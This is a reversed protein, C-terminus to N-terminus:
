EIMKYEENENKLKLVKFSISNFCYDVPHIEDLRLQAGALLRIVIQRYLLDSIMKLKNGIQYDNNLPPISTQKFQTTPILEYFENTLDTINEALEPMAPLGKSRRDTMRQTLELIDILVQQANELRETNLNRFPLVEEDFQYLTSVNQIIKSNCLRRILKFIDKDLKSEILTPDKYNIPRLYNDVKVPQKYTVLRYKKKVKHFNARDEWKNGSKSKFIKCFEAKGEEFSGFPTHQFQGDTGSRGWQTFLVIVGRVKDRLLQMRYFVNGSYYGRLIEVKVMYISFPDNDEYIVEYDGGTVKHHPKVRDKDDEKIRALREEEKKACEENFKEFDEEFDFNVVPFDIQHLVSSSVKKIQSPEILLEKAGFDLLAEKMLENAQQSAYYIPSNGDKDKLDLDAKDSFFELLNINMYYGFEMPKVIHHIINRGKNDLVTLDPSAELFFQEAQKEHNARVMLTLPTFGNGDGLNIDAGQKKLFELASLILDKQLSAVIYTTARHDTGEYPFTDNLDLGHNVGMEIFRKYSGFRKKMLISLPTDGSGDKQNIDLGLNVLDECLEVNGSEAAYHLCNKNFDDTLSFDIKKKKVKEYIKNLLDKEISGAHKCFLHSINQNHENKIQYLGADSKKLLLTYVYNFKKANFCDLIALSLKFGYELMLFAIGQWNRKIAMMFVTVKKKLSDFDLEDEEEDDDDYNNNYGFGFAARKQNYSTRPHAVKVENEDEDDDGFESESSDQEIDEGDEAEEEDDEGNEEAEQQRKLEKEKEDREKMMAITVVNVPIKLDASRQILYIAMDRHNNILCINLPTNEDNNQSNIEAGNKILYLASITSGRQAAYHLPTYGWQDKVNVKANERSLINSVTEIPDIQSSTFARGIKVFAYHLPTRNRKDTKNMDVGNSLLLNELENTADANDQNNNVAWHLVNRGDKDCFNIDAQKSELMLEVIKLNRNKTLIILPTTGEKTQIDVNAGLEIIRQILTLNQASCALTIPANGEKDVSNIDCGKNILYDFVTLDQISANQSTYLVLETKGDQRKQNVNIEAEEVFFKYFDVCQPSEATLHLM